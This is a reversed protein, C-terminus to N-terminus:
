VVKSLPFIGCIITLISDSGSKGNEALKGIISHAWYTCLREGM